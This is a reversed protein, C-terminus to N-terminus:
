KMAGEIFRKWCESKRDQHKCKSLLGIWGGHLETCKDVFGKIKHCAGQDALMPCALFTLETPEKGELWEEYSCGYRSFPLVEGDVMIDEDSIVYGCSSKYVRKCKPQSERKVFPTYTIIQCGTGKCNYCVVFAGDKEAMGQYLGTGKCAKCVAKISSM